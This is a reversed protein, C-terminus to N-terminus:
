CFHLGLEPQVAEELGFMRLLDRGRGAASLWDIGVGEGRVFKVPFEVGAAGVVEEGPLSADVLFGVGILKGEVNAGSWGPCMNQALTPLDEERPGHTGIEWGLKPQHPRPLVLFDGHADHLSLQVANHALRPSRNTLM